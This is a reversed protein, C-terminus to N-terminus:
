EKWSGSVLLKGSGTREDVDCKCRRRWYEKSVMQTQKKEVSPALHVAGELKGYM